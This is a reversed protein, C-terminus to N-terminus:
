FRSSALSLKQILQLRPTYRVDFRSSLSRASPLIARTLETAPGLLARVDPARMGQAALRREAETVLNKLRIPDQQQELGARHTPMFISVCGPSNTEALQRLEHTSVDSASNLM